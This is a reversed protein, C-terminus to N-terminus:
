TVANERCALLKRPVEGVSGGQVTEIVRDFKFQATYKERAM